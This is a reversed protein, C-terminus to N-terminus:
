DEEDEEGTTDFVASKTTNGKVLDIAHYVDRKRTYMESTALIAHNGSSKIVWWYPQDKIEENKKIQFYIM